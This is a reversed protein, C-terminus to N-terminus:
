NRATKHTILVTRTETVKAPAAAVQGAYYGGIAAVGGAVIASIAVKGAVSIAKRRSFNREM